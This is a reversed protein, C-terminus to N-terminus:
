SPNANHDVKVGGSTTDHKDGDQVISWDGTWKDAWQCCYMEYEAEM